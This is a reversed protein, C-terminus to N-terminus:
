YDWANWLGTVFSYTPFWVCLCVCVCLACSQARIFFVLWESSPSDMLMSNYKGMNIIKFNHFKWNLLLDIKSWLSTSLQFLFGTASTHALQPRSYKENHRHRTHICWGCLKYLTWITPFRYCWTCVAAPICIIFMPNMLQLQTKLM